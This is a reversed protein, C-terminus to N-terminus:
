LIQFLAQAGVRIIEFSQNLASYGLLCGSTELACVREELPGDLLIRVARHEVEQERFRQVVPTQVFFRHARHLARDLQIGLIRVRKVQDPEDESVKTAALFRRLRITARNHEVRGQHTRLRIERELGVPVVDCRTALLTRRGASM